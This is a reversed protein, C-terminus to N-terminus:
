DMKRRKIPLYIEMFIKEYIWDHCHEDYYEFDYVSEDVEYHSSPLWDELIYQWTGKISQVFQGVKVLPTRFVAYTAAPIKLKTLEQPLLTDEDYNVAFLYTFSDKLETGSINICYEGHKKPALLNYLTTEIAEDASIRQEWFAPADRTYSVKELHSEFTKGAIDFAEKHIIKPQMVIGGTQKQRLSLLDLKQPLSIPCHLKYLSPPSGFCKKFAKTFGSHTEFGYDLAIQIIRKGQVLEYLAFQLKRKQVYNMVPYGIHKDFIRYFHYPSYGVLAALEEANIEEKIHEDIYDIVQQLLLLQQIAIAM